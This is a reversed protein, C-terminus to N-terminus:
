SSKSNQFLIEDLRHMVLFDTRQLGSFQPGCKFHPYTLLEIRNVPKIKDGDLIDLSELFIPAVKIKKMVKLLAIDDLYAHNWLFRNTKIKKCTERSLVIFSGSIGPNIDSPLKKGAYYDMSPDVASLIESIRFTNVYSSLNTYIMFDFDKEIMFDVAGFLKFGLFSLGEPISIILSSEIFHSKPRYFSFPKGFLRAFITALRGFRGWRIKEFVISYSHLISFGKSKKAQLSIIQCSPPFHKTWTELAGNKELTRFPEQDSTTYAILVKPNELNNL